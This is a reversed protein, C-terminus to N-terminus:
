VTYCRGREIHRKLSRRAAFETKCKLCEIVERPTVDHRQMKHKKLNSKQTYIFDCSDIDCYYKLNNTTKWCLIKLLKINVTKWM